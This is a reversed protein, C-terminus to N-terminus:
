RAWAIDQECRLHARRREFPDLELVVEPPRELAVLQPEMVLRDHVERGVPDDAELREDAPLM